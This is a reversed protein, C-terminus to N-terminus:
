GNESRHIIEVGQVGAAVLIDTRHVFLGCGLVGPFTELAQELALPDLIKGTRVDLIFNGNDTVFPSGDALRLPAPGALAEIQRQTQRWGFRTIEVPLTRREGLSDVRKSEDVLIVNCRTAASVIKERILAGGHGKILELRPTVEDAGDFTADVEWPGEDDLLPIGHTRAADASARSTAVGVLDAGARVREGILSIAELATSGSGLGIVGREPLFQM